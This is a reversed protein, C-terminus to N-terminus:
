YLNGAVQDAARRALDHLEDLAHAPDTAPPTAFTLHVDFLTDRVHSIVEAQLPVAGAPSYCAVAENGIASMPAPAAFCKTTQAAWGDRDSYAGITVVLTNGAATFSCIYNTPTHWNVSLQAEAIGADNPKAGLIGGATARNIVPCTDDALARTPAVAFAAALAIAVPLSAAAILRRSKV